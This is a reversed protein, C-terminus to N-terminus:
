SAAKRLRSRRYGIVVPVAFVVLFALAVLLAISSSAGRGPLLTSVFQPNQDAKEPAV